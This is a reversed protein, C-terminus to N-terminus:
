QSLSLSLAPAFFPRNHLIWPLSHTQTHTIAVKSVTDHSEHFDFSLQSTRPGQSEHFISPRLYTYIYPVILAIHLPQM